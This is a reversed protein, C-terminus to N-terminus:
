ENENFIVDRRTLLNENQPNYLQYAKAHTSYGIFICKISKEDLKQRSHSPILAYAISGFIRLHSVTPKIGSWAEFPTQNM